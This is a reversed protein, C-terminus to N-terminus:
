GGSSPVATLSGVLTDVVACVPAVSPVPRRRSGRGAPDATDRYTCCRSILDSACSTCRGPWNVALRSRAEQFLSKIHDRVTHPSITLARAIRDTIYARVVLGLVAQERATLEHEAVYPPILDDRRAPEIVM